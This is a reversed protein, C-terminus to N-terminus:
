PGVEPLTFLDHAPRFLPTELWLGFLFLTAVTFAVLAVFVTRRLRVVRAYLVLFALSSLFIGVLWVAGLYALLLVAVVIRLSLTRDTFPVSYEVTPQDIRFEGPAAKGIGVDQGDGDDSGPAPPMQDDLEGRDQVQSVLDLDVDGGLDIRGKAVTVVGFFITVVAAIQPFVRAEPSYRVSGALMAVATGLVLGLLVKEETNM